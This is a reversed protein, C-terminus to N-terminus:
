CSLIYYISSLTRHHCSISGDKRACLSVAFVLCSVFSVFVEYQKDTLYGPYGDDRVGVPGGASNKIIAETFSTQPQQLLQIESTSEGM